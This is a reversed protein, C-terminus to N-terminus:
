QSEFSKPNELSYFIGKINIREKRCGKPLVSGIQICFKECDGANFSKKDLYSQMNNIADVSAYFWRGKIECLFGAYRNKEPRHKPKIDDIQTLEDFRLSQKRSKLELFLLSKGNHVIFDCINKTTFRKHESKEARMFGADKLRTCDIDQEQCSLKFLDEFKKGSNKKM